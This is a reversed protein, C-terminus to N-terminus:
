EEDPDGYILRPFDDNGTGLQQVLTEDESVAEVFADLRSLKGTWLVVADVDYARLASIADGATVAGAAIRAESPDVLPPPVLRNALFALYPADTIVWDDEDTLRDIERVVSRETLGITADPIGRGIVVDQDRAVLSPTVALYWVAGATALAPLLGPWQLRAAASWARACAVGLLLALPPLLAVGLHSSLDSYVLLVALQGVLWGAIALTLRGSSRALLLVGLLALAYFAPEERGYLKDFLLGVNHSVMGPSLDVKQGQLRWGVVQQFSAGLGTLALGGIGVAGLTLPALLSSGLSRRSVCLTLVPVAAPGVIPKVLVGLGLLLGALVRWRDRGTRWAGLAAGVAPVAFALAFAEPLAQRSLLLLTPSLALAVAAAIAAPRGGLLSGAWAAV